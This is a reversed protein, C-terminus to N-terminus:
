FIDARYMQRLAELVKSGGLRCQIATPFTNWDFRAHMQLLPLKNILGAGDTM